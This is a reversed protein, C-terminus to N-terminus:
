FSNPEMAASDPEPTPQPFIELHNENYGDYPFYGSIEDSDTNDTTDADEEPSTPMGDTWLRGSSGSLPFIVTLQLWNANDHYQNPYFAGYIRTYEGQTLVIKEEFSSVSDSKILSDALEAYADVATFADLFSITEPSAAHLLAAGITSFDSLTDMRLTLSTISGNELLLELSFHLPLDADDLGYSVYTEYAEYCPAIQHASGQQTLVTNVRAVYEAAAAPAVADTWASLAADDETQEALGGTPLLMMLLLFLAFCRKM